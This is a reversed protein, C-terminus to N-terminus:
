SFLNIDIEETGDKSVSLVENPQNTEPKSEEEIKDSSNEEAPKQEETNKEATESVEEKENAANAELSAKVDETEKKSLVRVIALDSDNTQITKPSGDKEKETLLQVVPLKPNDPNVDTVLAVKGNKLFVYAGIPFLSVSYLLAKIAMDDYQHNQNKLMEVMAEFTSRDEKYSRPATIAEFTCAVAIIKAYSIIKDSTLQRPYGTGNEKEHHELVGLQISIPFDLDKIINYGLLPHTMMQAKEGSTLKRDTMYLQPPLRVMGIEHLICAMGLEILKSLPLHQQLGITIALVTSRMSHAVLYNKSRAEVSPTIRLMYRRNDRIFIILDKVTDSLERQNIKKHTVYHTYVSNIYNMYEDYVSRVVEMRSKDSNGLKIEKSNALVKKLNETAAEKPSDKEDDSDSPLGIDGGLSLGGECTFESFGWDNLAKILESTVPATQPLLMFNSGIYLDGTFTLDQKLTELKITDM